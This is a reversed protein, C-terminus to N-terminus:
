LHSDGKAGRERVRLSRPRGPCASAGSGDGPACAMTPQLFTVSGPGVGAGLACVEPCLASISWLDTGFHSPPELGLSLSRRWPYVQDPEPRARFGVQPGEGGVPQARSSLGPGGGRVRGEADEGGVGAPGGGEGRGLVGSGVPGAGLRRVGRRWGGLVRPGFGVGEVPRSTAGDRELM